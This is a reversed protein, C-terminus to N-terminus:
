LEILEDESFDRGARTGLVEYWYMPSVGTGPRKATINDESFIEGKRIARKAVLSKRAVAINKKECESPVKEGSGLAKEVNRIASVMAKLEVPDLSAKHDPGEMQKDLTFHKEIIEAGMSVAAIPITIGPTHDSYGTQLRFTERLTLMAKLNVSEYPAPYETTCHLLSIKNRETGNKELIDLAAEVEELRCMGTSLIVKQNFSGIRELYPLNTIEGSPIKWTDMSLSRLFDISELEFPTSLFTIDVEECLAKLSYFDEYPLLIKRCMDLQSEQADTTKKQYDAKQAYRSMLLEAKATQFKVIDAGCEKATYVMKKALELRGNYNVGTEAIILTRNKM